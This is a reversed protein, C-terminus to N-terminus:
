FTNQCKCINYGVSVSSASAKFAYRRNKKDSGLRTGKAANLNEDITM